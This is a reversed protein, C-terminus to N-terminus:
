NGFDEIEAAPHGQHSQVRAAEGEPDVSEDPAARERLPETAAVRAAVGVPAGNSDRQVLVEVVSGSRNALYYFAQFKRTVHGCSPAAIRLALHALIAPHEIGLVISITDTQSEAALRLITTWARDLSMGFAWTAPEEWDIAPERDVDGDPFLGQSALLRLIGQTVAADKASRGGSLLVIRCASPLLTAERLGQFVALERPLLRRGASTWCGPRFWQGAAAAVRGETRGTDEPVAGLIGARINAFHALADSPGGPVADLLDTGLLDDLQRGQLSECGKWCRSSRSLSDGCLVVFLHM